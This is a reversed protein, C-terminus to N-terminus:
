RGDRMKMDKKCGILRCRCGLICILCISRDRCRAEGMLRAVRVEKTIDNNNTSAMHALSGVVVVVMVGMLRDLWVRRV